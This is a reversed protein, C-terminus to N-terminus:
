PAAQDPDDAIIATAEREDDSIDAPRRRLIASKISSAPKDGLKDVITARATIDDVFM